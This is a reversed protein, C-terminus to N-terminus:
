RGVYNCYNQIMAAAEARTANGRPDIRTGNEKGSMVKNAVAWAIGDKAYSSIGTYDKFTTLNAKKSTDKKKYDAYNKLITALQERTIYNNPRFRGDDYGSVVRNREAWKVAEYYYDSKKVDPFKQEGTITPSGEMRWLITVLNGRTVNTNPSFTKDTTGMIIGNDYCYKVSNYYWENKSVDKFELEEDDLPILKVQSEYSPEADTESKYGKLTLTTNFVDVQSGYYWIEESLDKFTTEITIYYSGDELEKVFNFGTQQLLDTKYENDAILEIKETGIPKEIHLAIHAFLKGELVDQIESYYKYNENIEEKNQLDKILTAIHTNPQTFCLTGSDSPLQQVPLIAVRDDGTLDESTITILDKANRTEQVARVNNTLFITFVIIILLIISISKKM